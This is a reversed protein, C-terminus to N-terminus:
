AHRDKRRITIYWPGGLGYSRADGRLALTLGFLGLVRNLPQLKFIISWATDFTV